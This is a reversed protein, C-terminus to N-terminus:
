GLLVSQGECLKTYALANRGSTPFFGLQLAQNAGAQTTRVYVQQIRGIWDPPMQQTKRVPDSWPCNTELCNRVLYFASNM